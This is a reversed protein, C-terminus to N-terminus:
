KAVTVEFDTGYNFYFTVTGKQSYYVDGLGELSEINKEVKGGKGTVVTFTPMVANIFLQEDDIERGHYPIKLIDAKLYDSGDSPMIDAIRDAEIDGTFLVSKELYTLKVVLSSNNSTDNEYEFSAPYFNLSIADFRFETVEKIVTETVGKNRVADLFETSADKEEVYEPHVVQSVHMSNLIEAGGGCHDKDFHSIIMYEISTVGKEDLFKLIDEADKKEGTDILINHDGIHILACDADNDTEIFSVFENRELATESLESTDEKKACGCFITLILAVAFLISLVRKTNKM